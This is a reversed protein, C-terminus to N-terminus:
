ELNIDEPVHYTREVSCWYYSSICSISAWWIINLVLHKYDYLLDTSFIILWTPPFCPVLEKVQFSISAWHDLSPKGICYIYTWDRTLSSLDWMSWPWFDLISWFWYQLLNLLFKLFPWMLFFRLFFYGIYIVSSSKRSLKSHVARIFRM